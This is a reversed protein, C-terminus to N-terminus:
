IAIKRCSLNPKPFLILCGPSPLNSLHRRGEPEREPCPDRESRFWVCGPGLQFGSQKMWFCVHSSAALLAEAQLRWETLPMVKNDGRRLVIERESQFAVHLATNEWVPMHLTHWRNLIMGNPALHARLLKSWSIIGSPKISIKFVKLTSQMKTLLESLYQTAFMKWFNGPLSVFDRKPIYDYFSMFM